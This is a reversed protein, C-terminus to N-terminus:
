ATELLQETSVPKNIIARMRESAAEPALTFGGRRSDRLADMLEISFTEIRLSPLSVALHKGAFRQGVAKVLEVIHTYDSSSLSLLGIEEYGTHQLAAEIANVVEEVGRQRVPRNIMGAHCFRCGRTCGRMIEVPVRNHVTDIYPVIFRTPAPPLVPVIRKLVPRPANDDLPEIREITGDPLYHPEYLTPVYVGWIKSLSRLLETRPLQSQKWVQHAHIIEHIVEEGEGIVFADIFAHMPEPNFTTHGGAIVLPHSNHREAAFLPIGALHLANLANTYLTEYPLSIGLIDFEALSHRTELSYLPIDAQRMAAEMDIWPLYAREALADPRQNVQDYLVALGLNSMGIDYIDPFLLALHTPTSQWDKVVQNLEGGTYRGPKQVTPLIRELRLYIEEPTLVM